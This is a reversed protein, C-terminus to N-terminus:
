LDVRAHDQGALLSHDDRRSARRVQPSVTFPIKERSDLIDLDDLTHCCLEPYTPAAKPAHGKEGVILEGENICISKHEM